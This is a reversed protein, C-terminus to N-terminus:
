NGQSKHTQKSSNGPVYELEIRAVEHARIGPLTHADTTPKANPDQGHQGPAACLGRKRRHAAVQTSAASSRTQNDESKAAMTDQGGLARVRQAAHGGRHVAGGAAEGVRGSGRRREARPGAVRADKRITGKRETAAKITTDDSANASKAAATGRTRKRESSANTDKSVERQRQSCASAM